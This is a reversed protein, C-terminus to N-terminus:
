LIHYQKKKQVMNWVYWKYFYKMRIQIFKKLKIFKQCTLFLLPLIHSYLEMQKVKNVIQIIRPEITNNGQM